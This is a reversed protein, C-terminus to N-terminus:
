RDRLAAVPHVFHFRPCTSEGEDLGPVPLQLTSDLGRFKSDRSPKYIFKRLDSYRATHIIMTMKFGKNAQASALWDKFEEPNAVTASLAIIPCPALLLLQEWIVGDEAQGICHVEDFIIRKVRKSWPHPGTANAPSLLMIQLIHPVTVLIQCGTPNNIRYDRTHIAWVSRGEKGNYTKSFRAEIEAAIQNVLAKTPAVYVLVADDSEQLAQKMAYFSVFTKGASTPAVVLLSENADISDLVKRQWADPEFSVRDDPRSDFRRDMYPGGHTIQLVRADDVLGPLQRALKRAVELDVFFPLARNTGQMPLALPPMMIAKALRDAVQSLERTLSASTAIKHIWRWMMAILHLGSCGHAKRDITSTIIFKGSSTNDRRSRTWIQSLVHCLFLLVDPTLIMCDERSRTSLFKDAKLYQEVLTSDRQIEVCTSTWHNLIAERKDQAKKVQLEQAARLANQRGGKQTGQKDSNKSSVHNKAPEERSYATQPRNKPSVVVTERELIKGRSNSLSAAYSIIDAMYRQNRRLAFFGMTPPKDRKNVNKLVHWHHLDEFVKQATLDVIEPTEQVKVDKLYGNVVPHDFTLISPEELPMAAPIDVNSYQQTIEVGFNPLSPTYIGSTVAQWLMQGKEIIYEPQAEKTQLARVLGFFLRGDVLDFLDWHMDETRDHSLSGSEILAWSPQAFSCLFAQDEKSSLCTQQYAKMSTREGLSYASLIATHLLLAQVHEELMKNPSNKTLLKRCAVVTVWEKISLCSADFIKLNFDKLSMIDLPDGDLKAHLDPDHIWALSSKLGSM